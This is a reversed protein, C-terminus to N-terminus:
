YQLMVALMRKGVDFIILNAIVNVAEQNSQSKASVRERQQAGALTQKPRTLAAEPKANPPATILVTM